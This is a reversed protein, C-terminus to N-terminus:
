LFCTGVWRCPEAPGGGIGVHQKHPCIFTSCGSPLFANLAAKISSFPRLLAWIGLHAECMCMM